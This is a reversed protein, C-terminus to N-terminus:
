YHISVTVLNATIAVCVARSPNKMQPSLNIEVAKIWPWSNIGHNHQVECLFLVPCVVPQISGHHLFSSSSPLILFLWRFFCKSQSKLGRDRYGFGLVREVLGGRGALTLISGM